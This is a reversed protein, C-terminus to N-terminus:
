RFYAKYRLQYRETVKRKRICRAPNGIMIDREEAKGKLVAGAGVVAYDKIDSGNLILAATGIWVYNRIRTKQECYDFNQSECMHSATLIKTYSSISTDHGIALGGRGDLMCNENIVSRDGIKIGVPNLIVTGIGIRAGKGITMGMKEYVKKRLQWCPIQNIIKNLSIYQFDYKLRDWVIKKKNKLRALVFIEKKSYQYVRGAGVSINKYYIHGHAM